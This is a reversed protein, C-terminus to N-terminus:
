KVQKSLKWAMFGLAVVGLVLVAWLTARRGDLDGILKEWRDPPPGAKVDGVKALKLLDEMGLKYNPMVSEIPLAAGSAQDNGFALHFPGEGEKVFVIRAPMWQVELKPM